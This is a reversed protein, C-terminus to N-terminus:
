KMAIVSEVARHIDSKSRVGIIQDVVGGKKFFLLTPISMINYRAPVMQNADVDLKCFKIKGVIRGALEEVIPSIM